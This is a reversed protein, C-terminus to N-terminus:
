AGGTEIQCSGWVCSWGPSITECGTAESHCGNNGDTVAPLAGAARHLQGHTLVRVTERSLKLHTRKM